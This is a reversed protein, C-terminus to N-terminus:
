IYRKIFFLLLLHGAYFSYYINGTKRGRKGNYLLIPIFGLFAFFQFVYITYTAIFNLTQTFMLKPIDFDRLLYFLYILLIGYWSYDVKMLFGFILLSLAILFKWVVNMCSKIYKIGLLGLFLTFFINQSTINFVESFMALDYPIESIVAWLFLKILYKNIDHTRISGEAIMFAFLLFSIRGIIRFVYVDPYFMSGVHDIVMTFLAILKLDFSSLIKFDHFGRFNTLLM